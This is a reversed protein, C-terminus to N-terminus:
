IWTEAERSHNRIIRWLIRAIMVACVWIFSDWVTWKSRKSHYWKHSNDEEDSDCWYKKWWRQPKQNYVIDLSFEITWRIRELFRSKFNKKNTKSNAPLCIFSIKLQERRRSQKEPCHQQLLYPLNSMKSCLAVNCNVCIPVVILIQLFHWTYHKLFHWHLVTKWFFAWFIKWNYRAFKSEYTDWARWVKRNRGQLKNLKMKVEVQSNTVIKSAPLCQLHSKKKRCGDKNFLQWPSWTKYSFTTLLDNM